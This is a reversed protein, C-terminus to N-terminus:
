CTNMYRHTIRVHKAGAIPTPRGGLIIILLRAGTAALIIGVKVISLSM